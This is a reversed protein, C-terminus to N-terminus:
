CTRSGTKPIANIASNTHRPITVIGPFLAAFAKQTSFWGDTNVMEPKYSPDLSIAEKQFVGCSARSSGGTNPGNDWYNLKTWNAAKGCGSCKTMSLYYRPGAIQIQRLQIDPMKALAPLKVKM